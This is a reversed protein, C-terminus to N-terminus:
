DEKAILLRYIEGKKLGTDAAAQKAAESPSMGETLYARALRAAEEPTASPTEAPVAGGVVLVFEGRPDEREYKEVAAALTTRVVEEHIKTIERVLAVPRDGLASHLDALTARLKHPAEYFVM